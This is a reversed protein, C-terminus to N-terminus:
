ATVAEFSPRHALELIVERHSTHPRSPQSARCSSADQYVILSPAGGDPRTVNVSLVTDSLV